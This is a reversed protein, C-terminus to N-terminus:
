PKGTGPTDMHRRTPWNCPRSAKDELRHCDLLNIGAAELRRKREEFLRATDGVNKHGSEAVVSLKSQPGYSLWGRM